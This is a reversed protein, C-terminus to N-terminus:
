NPQPGSGGVGDEMFEASKTLANRPRCVPLSSIFAPHTMALLGFASAAIWSDASQWRKEPDGRSSRLTAIVFTSKM